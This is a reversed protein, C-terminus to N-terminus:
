RGGSKMKYVWLVQCQWRSCMPVVLWDWQVTTLWPEFLSSMYGLDLMQYRMYGGYSWGYIGVRAPDTLGVKEFYKVGM